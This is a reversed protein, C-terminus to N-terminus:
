SLVCYRVLRQLMLWISALRIFALVTRNLNEFDKSLRRRRNIWAITREVVWRRPLVEFSKRDKPKKVVEIKWAADAIAQRLKPSTLM